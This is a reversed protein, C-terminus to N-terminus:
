NCGSVSIWDGTSTWRAKSECGAMQQMQKTESLMDALDQQQERSTMMKDDGGPSALMPFSQFICSMYQVVVDAAPNKLSHLRELPIRVLVAGPKTNFCGGFKTVLHHM